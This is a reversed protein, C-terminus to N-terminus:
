GFGNNGSADFDFDDDANNVGDVDSDIVNSPAENVGADIAYDALTTADAGLLQAVNTISADAFRATM